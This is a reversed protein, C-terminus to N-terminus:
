WASQSLVKQGMADATWIVGAIMEPNVEFPMNQATDSEGCAIETVKMIKEENPETVGIQAVTVPLGVSVCFELVQKLEEELANELVRQTIVGFAVKEGHYM